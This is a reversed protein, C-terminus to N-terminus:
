YEGMALSKGKGICKFSTSSSAYHFVKMAFILEVYLNYRHWNGVTRGIKHEEKFSHVLM